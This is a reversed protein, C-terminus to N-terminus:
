PSILNDLDATTVDGTSGLENELYSTFQNEFQGTIAQSSQQIQQQIIPKYFVRLLFLGVLVIVLVVIAAATLKKM